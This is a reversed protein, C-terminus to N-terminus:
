KRRGNGREKKEKAALTVEVTEEIIERTRMEDRIEDFVMTLGASVLSTLFLGVFKSGLFRRFM